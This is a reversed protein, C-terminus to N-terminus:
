LQAKIIAEDIGASKLLEQWAQILESNDPQEKRLKHLTALTDFWLGKKAYKGALDLSMVEDTKSNFSPTLEIRKVAGIIWPENMLDYSKEFSELNNPQLGSNYKCLLFVSWQYNEDVKLPASHQPIEINIIKGREAQVALLTQYIIRDQNDKLQFFITSASTPPLYVLFTPHEKVTLWQKTTQPVLATLNSASDQKSLNKHPCSSRSGGATTANPEGNNPPPEFKIMRSLFVRQTSKETKIETNANISSQWFLLTSLTAWFLRSKYSLYM